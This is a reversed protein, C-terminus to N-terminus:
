GMRIMARELLIRNKAKDNNPTRETTTSPKAGVPGKVFAGDVVVVTDGIIGEDRVVEVEEVIGLVGRKDLM